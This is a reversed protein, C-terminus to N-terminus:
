GDNKLASVLEELVSEAEATPVQCTGVAKHGGGGYKLMLSGVDAKSSRNIISHGVAFVCNQKNRGDILWVSINQDPYLSYILFRNGSYIVDVGRLDTIILNGDTRTHRVIMQKFQENQVFYREVREQVDPTRLIDEISIHRCYEIMDEMLQYNSIRYDRFRGLGTRPDMIFSLLIWGEPNIIEDATLRGSDSKDVAAMMEKLRGFKEDGGYYDYIVRAASPAQRSEGKFGDGLKLREDESSHHDFWLGCGKVYPINALVDNESVDILGDQVDKPHVFRLSDIMGAEKLLVACALGDFDSRTVLRM